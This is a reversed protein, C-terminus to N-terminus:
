KDKHDKTEKNDKTEEEKTEGEAAVLPEGEVPEAVKVEEEKVTTVHMVVHEPDLLIRMSAPGKIDKVQIGEGIQLRTIDIELKEPLESPLCEVHLFRDIMEFVGGLRAGEATGKTEIPVMTRVKEGETIKYFDLHMVEDSVPDVQYDKVFVHTKGSGAIDLDIIVSESIHKGFVAGFDKKNVQIKESTGHSYMVAPIFGKERLRNNSNKGTETRTQASLNRAM